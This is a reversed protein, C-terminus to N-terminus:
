SVGSREHLGGPHGWKVAVGAARRWRGQQCGLAGQEATMHGGERNEHRTFVEENWLEEWLGAPGGMDKRNKRRHRRRLSAKPFVM